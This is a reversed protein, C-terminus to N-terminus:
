GITIMRSWNKDEVELAVEQIVAVVVLAAAVLVDEALAEEASVEEASVEEASVEEVMTLTEEMASAPTVALAGRPTIAAIITARVSDLVVILIVVVHIHTPITEVWVMVITLAM